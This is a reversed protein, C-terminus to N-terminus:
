KNRRIAPKAVAVSVCPPETCVGWAAHARWTKAGDYATVVLAFVPYLLPTCIGIDKEHVFREKASISIFPNYVLANGQLLFFLFNFSIMLVSM